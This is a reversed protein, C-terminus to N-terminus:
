DAGLSLAGGAILASSAAVVVSRAAQIKIAPLFIATLLPFGILFLLVTM